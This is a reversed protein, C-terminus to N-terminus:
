KPVLKGLRALQQKPLAERVQPWGRRENGRLSPNDPHERLLGTEERNRGQWVGDPHGWPM